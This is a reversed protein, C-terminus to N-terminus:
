FLFFTLSFSSWKRTVPLKLSISPIVNEFVMDTIRKSNYNIMLVYKSGFSHFQLETKNERRGNYTEVKRHKGM